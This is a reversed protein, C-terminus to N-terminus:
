ITKQLNWVPNYYRRGLWYINIYNKDDSLMRSIIDKNNTLNEINHFKYKIDILETIM